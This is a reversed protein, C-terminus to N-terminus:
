MLTYHIYMTTIHIVVMPSIVETIGAYYAQRIDKYVSSKNINLKNINYLDKLLLRVALGSITISKTIDLKYDLFVQRNAKTLVAHLSLIDNILYKM